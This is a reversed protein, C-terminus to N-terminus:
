LELNAVAPARTLGSQLQPLKSSLTGSEGSVQVSTPTAQQSRSDQMTLSTSAVSFEEEFNPITVYQKTKELLYQVQERLRKIEFRQMEILRNNNEMQELLGAISASNAAAQRGANAAIPSTPGQSHVTSGRVLKGRSKSRAGSSPRAGYETQAQSTPRNIAVSGARSVNGTEAITTLAQMRLESQVQKLQVSLEHNARRLSNVEEMLAHNERLKRKANDAGMTEQMAAKRVMASKHSELFKRQRDWEAAKELEEEERRQMADKGAAGGGSSAEWPAESLVFKRYLARISEKWDASDAGQVARGLETRFMRIYREKEKDRSASLRLERTLSDVAAQRDRMGAEMTSKDQGEREFEAEMEHVQSLLADIQTDKPEMEARLAHLKSGLVFRFKELEQTRKKLENILREKDVLSEDRQHVERRLSSCTTQLESIQREAAALSSDRQRLVSRLNEAEQRNQAFKNRMYVAESKLGSALEKQKDLDRRADEHVSEMAAMQENFMAHTEANHERRLYDLDDQLQRHQDAADRLQQEYHRRVDEMSNAHDTHVATLMDEYKVREDEKADKLQALATHAAMLKLEYANELETRLNLHATQLHEVKRKADAEVDVRAIRLADMEASKRELERDYQTRADRAEDLLEKERERLKITLEQRVKVVQEELDQIRSQSEAFESRLVMTLTDFKALVKPDLPQTSAVVGLEKDKDKDKELGADQQMHSASVANVASQLASTPQFLVHIALAGDEGGTLLYQDAHSITVSRIGDSHAVHFHHAIRKSALVQMATVFTPRRIGSMASLSTIEESTMPVAVDDQAEADSIRSDTVFAATVPHLPLILLAGTHCGVMIASISDLSSVRTFQLDSVSIEDVGIGNVIRRIVSTDRGLGCAVLISPALHTSALGRASMVTDRQSTSSVIASPPSISSDDLGATSHVSSRGRDLTESFDHNSPQQQQAVVKPGQSIDATRSGCFAVGTFQISKDIHEQVKRGTLVDWEYVAGDYGATAIRADDRSWSIARVPGIHGRLCHIVQFTVSSVLWLSTGSICALIHGGHAFRMTKCGKCDLECVQVLDSVTIAYFVLKRRFSVVLLNGSPHVAASLPEEPFVRLILQTKTNVDWVRVSCDFSATVAVPRHVAMDIVNIRGRHAQAVVATRAGEEERALDVESLNFQVLTQSEEFFCVFDESQSLACGLITERAVTRMRRTESLLNIEQLTAGITNEKADKSVPANKKDKEEAEKL